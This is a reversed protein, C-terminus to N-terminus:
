LCICTSMNISPIIHSLNAKLLTCMSFLHYLDLHSFIPWVTVVKLSTIPKYSEMIYCHSFPLECTFVATMWSEAQSFKRGMMYWLITLTWACWPPRACSLPCLDYNLVPIILFTQLRYLPAASPHYSHQTTGM